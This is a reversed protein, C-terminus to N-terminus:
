LEGEMLAVTAAIDKKEWATLMKLFRNLEQTNNDHSTM